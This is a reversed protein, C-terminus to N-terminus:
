KLCPGLDRIFHAVNEEDSVQKVFFPDLGHAEYAWELAEGYNSFFHELRDGYIVVFQGKHRAMLEPLAAEYARLEQRENPLHEPTTM